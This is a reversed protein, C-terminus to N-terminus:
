TVDQEYLSLTVMDKEFGLDLWLQHSADICMETRIVSAERARLWAIAEELLRHTLGQGREAPVVYISELNGVVGPLLGDLLDLRGNVFGVITDGDVAVLCFAHQHWASMGLMRALNRLGKPTLPGGDPIERCMQDWLTAVQDGEDEAIRRIEIM